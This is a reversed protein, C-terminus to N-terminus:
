VKTVSTSFSKTLTSTSDPFEFCERLSLVQICVYTLRLEPFVGLLASNMPTRVPAFPTLLFISSFNFLLFM